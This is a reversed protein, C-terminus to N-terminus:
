LADQRYDRLARATVKGDRAEAPLLLETVVDQLAAVRQHLQRGAAVEAELEALRTRIRGDKRAQYPAALRRALGLRGSTGQDGDTSSAQERVLLLLDVITRLAADLVEGDSVEGTVRGERRVAVLDDLDGHVAYGGKSIRRIARRAREEAEAFQIDTLGLPEDGQPALVHHALVDRLWRARERSGELPPRLHGNVRRLLEAEVVGLSENIREEPFTVAVDGLRCTDAFRRWLLTPDDGGRPVTVIHVHDPALDRGWRDAVTSPDTTRWGWEGAKVGGRPPVWEDLPARAGFKLREQWASPVSRSLDRATVVVHVDLGALDSIARAAQDATAASFLEYSLVATPGSWATIEAVLAGWMDRRAPPLKQWRPDQRVQLAAQVRDVHSDGVVLVGAAALQERSGDLVRQVYTTGSKPCGVHLYVTQTM